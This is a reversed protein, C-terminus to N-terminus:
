AQVEDRNRYRWLAVGALVVAAAAILWVPGWSADARGPQPVVWYPTAAVVDHPLGLVDGLAALLVIVGYVSWAVAVAARPMWATLLAVFATVLAVVPWYGVAALAFRGSEGADGIQAGFSAGMLSGGVALMVLSGLAPILIRAGVWSWRSVAATWELEALAGAEDHRLMLTSQVAFATVLVALFVLLFGLLGDIPTDAGGSIAVVIPSSRLQDLMGNMLTAIGGFFLGTVAIGLTWSVISTRQLRLPLGVVTRTLASARVPGPRAPVIGSGLDRVRELAIAVGCGAIGLALLPLLPWWQDDGFSRTQQAWGVPSLWTYWRPEDDVANVDAIARVLYAAALVISAWATAGRGTSALQGTIAAVGVFAIGLGSFSLGMLMSGGAPLGEAIAAVGCLLGAVLAFAATMIWGAVSPAHRGLATARLLEARGSEEEARGHRTVLFVCVLALAIANSMWLKIDLIGGPTAAAYPLGTLAAVSPSNAIAAYADRDAQTPFTQKQYEVVTVVLAPLVLAWVLMRLWSRRLDLALMRGLGALDANM